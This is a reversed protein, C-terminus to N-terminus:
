VGLGFVLVDIVQTSTPNEAAIMNLTVGTGAAVPYTTGAAVCVPGGAVVAYINKIPSLAPLTIAKSTSSGDLLLRVVECGFDGPSAPLGTSSAAPINTATISM